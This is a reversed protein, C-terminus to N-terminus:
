ITVSRGAPLIELAVKTLAEPSIFNATSRQGLDSLMLEHIQIVQRPEVERVLEVADALKTWPGSTPLLLTDVPAGPVHYADGPHYVLGDILYGVNAVQAIDPHILAHLEGFVAVDMGAAEFTDGAKVAQVQGPRGAWRQVVAAPGFVRLEPRSSLASELMQEDFHDFHEHTILVVTTGAVLDAAEPTLTGPDILLYEGGNDLTVCAHAYKTLRM